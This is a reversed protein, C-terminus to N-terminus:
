FPGHIMGDGFRVDPGSVGADKALAYLKEIVESSSQSLDSSWICAAVGALHPTAMSTGSERRFSQSPSASVIGVGPGTLDPKVVRMSPFLSTSSWTVDGGGSRPWITRDDDYAGVGILGPIPYNAPSIHDFGQGYTNGIGAFVITGGEVLRKIIDFWVDHQGPWGFSLSVIDCKEELCIELGRQVSVVSGQLKKLAKVAVVECGPAIGRKIETDSKGVLISTCHTGHWGSDYPDPRSVDGNDRDIDFFDVLNADSFNSHAWDVGSDIVGVRVGAGTGWDNWIQEHSLATLGWNTEDEAATVAGIGPDYPFDFFDNEWTRDVYASGDQELQRLQEDDVIITESFRPLRSNNRLFRIGPNTSRRLLVIKSSM